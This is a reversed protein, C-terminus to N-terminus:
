NALRSVTTTKGAGLFGGIMIFRPDSMAFQGKRRLSKWRAASAIAHCDGFSDSTQDIEQLPRTELQDTNGGTQRLRFIQSTFLM